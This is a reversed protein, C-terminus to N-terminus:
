NETQTTLSFSCPKTCRKAKDGYRMHYFCMQSTNRSSPNGPPIGLSRSRSRHRSNSLKNFKMNLDSFGQLLADFKDSLKQLKDSLSSTSHSTHTTAMVTPSSSIDHIRDALEAMKELEWTETASLISRLTIPMHNMWLSRMMEDTVCGAALTRMERLLEKPKKNGLDLGSTHAQERQLEQIRRQLEEIQEQQQQQSEMNTPQQERQQSRTPSRDITM